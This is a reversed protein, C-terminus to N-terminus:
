TTDRMRLQDRVNDLARHCARLMTWDRLLTTYHVAYKIELALNAVTQDTQPHHKPGLLVSFLQFLNAM